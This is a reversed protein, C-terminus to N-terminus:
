PPATRRTVGRQGAPCRGVFPPSGCAARESRGEVTTNQFPRLPPFGTRGDLRGGQPPSARCPLPPHSGCAVGRGCRRWRPCNTGKQRATPTTRRRSSWRSRVCPSPTCCTSAPPSAKPPQRRPPSTAAASTTPSPSRRTTASASRKSRTTRGFVLGSEFTERLEYDVGAARLELTHLRDYSRVFPPCQSIRGARPGRHSGHGGEEPHLRRRDQGKRHRRRAARRPPYWRRFLHPLRFTRGPARPRRFRRHDDRRRGGALLIQSAIQGFRSFGIM